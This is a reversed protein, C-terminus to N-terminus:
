KVIELIRSNLSIRKNTISFADKLNQTTGNIKSDDNTHIYALTEGVTVTDGIKKNLTIGAIRNISGEDRMRGAGLYYAISGLMDPDIYEVTGTETALVPMIFKSSEFKEPNDVYTIDGGSLQLWKKSNKM